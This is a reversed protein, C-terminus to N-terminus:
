AIRRLAPILEDLDSIVHHGRAAFLARAESATMERESTASVAFGVVMPKKV